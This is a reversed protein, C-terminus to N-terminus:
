SCVPAASFLGYLFHATAAAISLSAFPLVHPQAIMSFTPCGCVATNSVTLSMAPPSLEVSVIESSCFRSLGLWM